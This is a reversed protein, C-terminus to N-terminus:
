QGRLETALAAAKDALTAAFIYNHDTLAQEAQKTFSKALDYQSRGNATLKRYDVRNLDRSAQALVGRVKRDQAPDLPTPVPRVDKPAEEAPAPQTTATPPQPEPRESETGTGTRRPPTRAPARPAAEAPTAPAPSTPLPEEAPALVRPPPSPVNLPPAETNAAAKTKACGSVAILL